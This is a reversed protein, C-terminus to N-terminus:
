LGNNANQPTFGSSSFQVAWQSWGYADSLARRPWMRDLPSAGECVFILGLWLVLTLGAFRVYPGLFKDWSKLEVHEEEESFDSQESAASSESALEAVTIRVGSSSRKMVTPPIASGPFRVMQSVDFTEWGRIM